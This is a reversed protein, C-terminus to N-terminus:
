FRTETWWGLFLGLGLGLPCVLLLILETTAMTRLGLVM